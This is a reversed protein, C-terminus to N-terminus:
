EAGLVEGIELGIELLGQSLSLLSDEENSVSAVWRPQPRKEHRKRTDDIAEIM